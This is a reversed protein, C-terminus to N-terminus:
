TGSPTQEARIVNAGAAVFTNCQEETVLWDTVLTWGSPLRAWAWQNAQSLKTADALVFVDRAQEVMISKLAIQDISAECLGRGPVVGDAGLFVKDATMRRMADVALPGVTSVSTARFTGGLFILENEQGDAFVSLLALNNTIIRLRRGKLIRGLETVTSGSDLIVVDGDVVLKAATRAIAMKQDLNISQRKSFHEEPLSHTIIAGGYTRTVVNDHSLTKLYRRITSTSVKLRDSLGKVDVEGTRLADLLLARRKSSSGM